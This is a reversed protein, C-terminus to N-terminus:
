PAPLLSLSVRSWDGPVLSARLLWGDLPNERSHNYRVVAWGTLTGVAAGMVVDSAWHRNDFMRTLGVLTAPGYTLASVLVDHRGSWRWHLEQAVAAAAAFAVTTHGSPFARYEEDHLGRGLEFDFPDTIDLAPRARGAAFKVAYTIVSAAVLAEGMHLGIDAVHGDGALLGGGYLGASAIFAGPVALRNFLWAAPKLGPVDQVSSDRIAAALTRDLPFAAAAGLVFGGAVLADGADFVRDFAQANGAGPAAFLAAAALVAAALRPTASRPRM